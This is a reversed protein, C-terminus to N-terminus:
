ASGLITGAISVARPLESRCWGRGEALKALMRDITVFAEASEIPVGLATSRQEDEAAIQKRRSELELRAEDIAAELFVAGEVKLADERQGAAVIRLSQGLNHMAVRQSELTVLKAWAAPTPKATFEAHARAVVDSHASTQRIFTELERVSDNSKKQYDLWEQRAGRGNLKSLLQHLM